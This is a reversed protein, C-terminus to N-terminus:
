AEPRVSQNGLNSMSNTWPIRHDFVIDDADASLSTYATTTGGGWSATTFMCGQSNVVNNIISNRSGIETSANTYFGIANPAMGLSNAHSAGNGFIIGATCHGHTDAQGGSLVNTMPTNFDPHNAECGEFVHGRVGTGTYGFNDVATAGGQTRANNMDFEPASWRDIWLVEDFRAALLMQAGTLEATMLLGGDHRNTVKGGMAEIKAQLANKQGRKDAMVMNYKRVPVVAGTVHEQFLFPEVRYAPQYPGVWRVERLVACSAASASSMEVVYGDNPMYQVIKGGILRIADRDADTAPGPFQVIWLNTDGASRLTAPVELLGLLPDFSGYDLLIRHDSSRPSPVSVDGPQQAHITFSTACLSLLLGTFRSALQM